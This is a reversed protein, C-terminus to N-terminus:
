RWKNRPTPILPNRTGPQLEEIRREREREVEDPPDAVHWKVLLSPDTVVPKLSLGYVFHM